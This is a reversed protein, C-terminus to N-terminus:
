KVVNITKVINMNPTMDLITIHPPPGSGYQDDYQAYFHTSIYTEEETTNNSKLALQAAKEDTYFNIEIPLGNYGNLSSTGTNFIIQNTVDIISIENAESPPIAVISINEDSLYGIHKWTNQQEQNQSQSSSQTPTQTGPTVSTSVPPNKTTTTPPTTSQSKDSSAAKPQSSKDLNDSKSTNNDNSHTSAAVTPSIKNSLPAPLHSYSISLLLILGMMVPVHTFLVRVRTKVKAWPLILSPKILGIMLSIVILFFLFNLLVIITMLSGKGVILMLIAIIPIYTIAVYYRTRKTGWRIVLSPKILGLFLIVLSLLFLLIFVIQM